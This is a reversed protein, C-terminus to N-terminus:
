DEVIVYGSVHAHLLFSFEFPNKYPTGRRRQQAPCYEHDYNLMHIWGWPAFITYHRNIGTIWHVEGGAAQRTYGYVGGSKNNSNEIQEMFLFEKIGLTKDNRDHKHTMNIVVTCGDADACHRELNVRASCAWTRDGPEKLQMVIPPLRELVKLVAEPADIFGIDGDRAFTITSLVLSSVVCFLSLAKM